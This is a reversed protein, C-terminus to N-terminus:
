EVFLAVIRKAEEMTEAGWIDRIAFILQKLKEERKRQAKENWGRLATQIEEVARELATDCRKKEERLMAVEKEKELQEVVERADDAGSYGGWETYSYWHGSQNELKKKIEQLQRVLGARQTNNIKSM